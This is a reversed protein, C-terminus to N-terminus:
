LFASDRPGPAVTKINPQGEGSPNKCLLSILERVVEPTSKVM